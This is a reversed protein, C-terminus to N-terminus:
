FHMLMACQETKLDTDVIRYSESRSEISSQNVARLYQFIRRESM